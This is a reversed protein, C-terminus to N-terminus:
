QIELVNELKAEFTKKNFIQLAYLRANAGILSARVMNKRVWFLALMFDEPTRAPIYHIFPEFNYGALVRSDCILIKGYLLPEFVKSQMGSSLYYPVLFANNDQYIKNIDKVYNHIRVGKKNINLEPIKRGYINILINQSILKDYDFKENIFDFSKRNHLVNYTSGMFGVNYNNGSSFKAKNTKRFALQRLPIIIIESKGWFVSVTKYYNADRPSIALISDARLEQIISIFKLV